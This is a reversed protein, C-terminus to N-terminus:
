LLCMTFYLLQTDLQDNGLITSLHATLLVYFYAFHRGVNAILYITTNKVNDVKYQLKFVCRHHRV